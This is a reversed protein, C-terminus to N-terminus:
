KESTFTLVAESVANLQKKLSKNIVSRTMSVAKKPNPDIIYLGSKVDYSVAPIIEESYAASAVVHLSETGFPPVIEFEGLSVWKNADDANIFRVFRRKGDANALELLYSNRESKKVTYGAIYIYAPGSTKVLIEIEEGKKFLLNSSGKNTAINVHFDSSVALGQYLLSDFDATKPKYDLGAYASPALEVSSASITNKESDFLRYTLIINKGAPVYEGRMTYLSNEPSGAGKVAATVAAQVAAAFPTVEHSGAVSPPYVYIGNKDIKECLIYAADALTSAKKQLALIRASIDNSSVGLPLSGEDGLIKAVTYVREYRDALAYADKLLNIGQKGTKGDASSLTSMTRQRLDSLMSKYMPLAKESSMVATAKVEGFEENYSLEAGALPLDTSLAINKAAETQGASDSTGSTKLTYESSVRVLLQSSLDSLAQSKASEIDSGYGTGTFTAAFAGSSVTLILLIQLIRFM